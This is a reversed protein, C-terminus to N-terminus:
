RKNKNENEETILDKVELQCFDVESTPASGLESPPKMMVESDTFNIIHQGEEEEEKESVALGGPIYDDDM